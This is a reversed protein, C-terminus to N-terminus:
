GTSTLKWSTPIKVFYRERIRHLETIYWLVWLREQAGCGSFVALCLALLLTLSRLKM